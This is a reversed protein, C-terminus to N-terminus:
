EGEGLARHQQESFWIEQLYEAYEKKNLPMQTRPVEGVEPSLQWEIKFILQGPSLPPRGEEAAAPLVAVIRGVNGAPWGSNLRLTVYQGCKTRAEQLTFEDNDKTNM